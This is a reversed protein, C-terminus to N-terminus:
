VSKNLVHTKGNQVISAISLATDPFSKKQVVPMEARFSLSKSFKNWSCIAFQRNVKFYVHLLVHDHM